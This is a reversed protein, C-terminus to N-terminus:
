TRFYPSLCAYFFCECELLSFYPFFSMVSGLCVWFKTLCIENSRLAWSVIMKPKIGQGRPGTPIAADGGSIKDPTM